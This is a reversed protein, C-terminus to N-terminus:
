IEIVLPETSKWSPLEASWACIATLAPRLPRGRWLFLAILAETAVVLGGYPHVAPLLWAAAAALTAAGGTRLELARVFTGPALAGVFALLGLFHDMHNTLRCICELMGVRTLDNMM